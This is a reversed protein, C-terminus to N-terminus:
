VISLYLYFLLLTSVLQPSYLPVFYLCLYDSTTGPSGPLGGCGGHCHRGRDDGRRPGPLSAFASWSGGVHGMLGLDGPCVLGTDLPGRPAGPCALPGRGPVGLGVRLGVAGFPCLSM